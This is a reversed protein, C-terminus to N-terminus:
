QDTGKTVKKEKRRQRKKNQVAMVFMTWRISSPQKEENHKHAEIIRMGLEKSSVQAYKFWLKSEKLDLHM